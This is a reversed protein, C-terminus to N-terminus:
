GSKIRLKRNGSSQGPIPQREIVHIKRCIQCVHSFPVPTITPQLIRGLMCEEVTRHHVRKPVMNTIWPVYRDLVDQTWQDRTCTRCNTTGTTQPSVNPAEWAALRQLFPPTTSPFPYFRVFCFSNYWSSVPNKPCWSSSSWFQYFTTSNPLNMLLHTCTSLRTRM